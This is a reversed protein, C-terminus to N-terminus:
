RRNRVGLLQGLSQGPPRDGQNVVVARGTTRFPQQEVRPRLGVGCAVHELEPQESELAGDVLPGEPLPPLEAPDPRGACGPAGGQGAGHIQLQQRAGPLVVVGANEAVVVEPQGQHVGRM